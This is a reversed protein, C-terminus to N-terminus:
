NEGGISLALMAVLILFVITDMGFIIVNAVDDKKRIARSLEIIWRFVLYVVLIIQLRHLYKINDM